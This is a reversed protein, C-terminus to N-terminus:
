GDLLSGRLRTETRSLGEEEEETGTDITGFAPRGVGKASPQGAPGRARRHSPLTPGLELRGVEGPGRGRVLRSVFGKEYLVGGSRGTELLTGYHPGGFSRV